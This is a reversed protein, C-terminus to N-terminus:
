ELRRKSLLCHDESSCTLSGREKVERVVRSIGHITRPAIVLLVRVRQQGVSENIATSAKTGTKDRRSVVNGNARAMELRPPFFIKSCGAAMKGPSLRRPMSGFTPLLSAADRHQAHRRLTGSNMEHAIVILM